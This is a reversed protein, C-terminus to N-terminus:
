PTSTAWPWHHPTASPPWAQAQMSGSSPGEGVLGFSIFDPQRNALNTPSGPVRKQGNYLLMGDASDPRFTIKIEFKRYADKITPLPLFSYPTQTFYPVVREPVQLHAFAKVKGQRNTATCVYTGADQPRVSPLTLMNNELRSDPPLSGDLKSWSIDPTPYGSAICPFVAASGAPVRVEQPMSIQPLAQVLLLVHSQTTGAANTATCRYQGADALEVHAIRVVGGSQVIGPRLHGGVKSWTVQPKPDGLALCEFEVAHGVVVTQM